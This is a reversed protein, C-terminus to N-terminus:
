SLGVCFDPKLWPDNESRETSSHMPSRARLFGM